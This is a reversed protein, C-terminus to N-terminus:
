PNNRLVSSSDLLVKPCTGRNLSPKGTKHNSLSHLLVHPLDCPQRLADGTEHCLPYESRLLRAPNSRQTSIDVFPACRSITIGEKIAIIAGIRVPNIKPTGPTSPRSIPPKLLPKTNAIKIALAPPAHSLAFFYTSSPLKPPFPPSTCLAVTTPSVTPSGNLSVEPGLKFIKIFSILMTAM